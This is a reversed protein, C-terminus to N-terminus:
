KFFFFLSKVKQIFRTLTFTNVLFSLLWFLGQKYFNPKGYDYKLLLASMVWFSSELVHICTWELRLLLVEYLSQLFLSLCVVLSLRQKIYYSTAISDYHIDMDKPILIEANESDESLNSAAKNYTKKFIRVLYYSYVCILAYIVCPFLSLYIFYPDFTISIIESAEM